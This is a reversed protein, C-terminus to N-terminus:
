PLKNMIERLLEFTQEFKRDIDHKFRDMTGELKDMRGELKDMRGELKDLREEVSNFRIKMEANMNLITESMAELKMKVKMDEIRASLNQDITDM